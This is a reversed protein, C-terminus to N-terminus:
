RRVEAAAADIWEALDSERWRLGLGCLKLPPPLQGRQKMNRVQTPTTRLREAVDEVTM